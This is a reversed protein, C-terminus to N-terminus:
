EPMEIKNAIAVFQECSKLIDRDNKLSLNTPKVSQFFRILKDVESQKVNVFTDPATFAKKLSDLSKAIDGVLKRLNDDSDESKQIESITRGASKATAKVTRLVETANGGGSDDPPQLIGFGVHVQRGTQIKFAERVLWDAPRTDKESFSIDVNTKSFAVFEGAVKKAGQVYGDPLENALSKLEAPKFEKKLKIGVVCQTGKWAIGFHQVKKTRKFAKTLDLLESEKSDEVVGFHFEIEKFSISGVSMLDDAKAGIEKAIATRLTVRYAKVAKEIYSNLKELIEKADKPEDELVIEGFFESVKKDFASRFKKVDGNKKPDFDVSAAEKPLVIEISVKIPKIALMAEVNAVSVGSPLALKSLDDLWQEEIAILNKKAM